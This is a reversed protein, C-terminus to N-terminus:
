RGAALTRRIQGALVAGDAPRASPDDDFCSELVEVLAASMGRAELRRRWSGGGPRGRQLDGELLQYWLVGLAYIDDGPQPADDRLQEASAYVDGTAGLDAGGALLGMGVNTLLCRRRGTTDTMLLINSARLSHHVIAPRLTHLRGLTEAIQLVLDTVALPAIPTATERAEQVLAALDAAQLYPRRLCPPDAFLHIEQLPVVGPLRGEMLVRDLLPAMDRVQRRAARDTFFHLAAPPRDPLRPNVAQWVEGQRTLEILERLEWDGINWPRDGPQYTPMRPPLLPLLDAGSALPLGAPVTCGLPNGPRRFHRRIAGPVLRLYGFVSETQESRPGLGLDRLVADVADELQDEKSRALAELDCRKQDCDARADWAKWVSEAFEPTAKIVVDSLVSADLAEVLAQGITHLLVDATAHIM